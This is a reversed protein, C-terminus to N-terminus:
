VVGGKKAFHEGVNGVAYIGFNWQTFAIWQDANMLGNLFSASAFVELVIFAWLKRSAAKPEKM